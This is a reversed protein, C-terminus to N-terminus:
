TRRKNAERALREQDIHKSYQMVMGLSMCLQASIEQHSIIGRAEGNRSKVPLEIGEDRLSIHVQRASQFEAFKSFTDDVAQFYRFVLPKFNSRRGCRGTSGMTAFLQQVAHGTL